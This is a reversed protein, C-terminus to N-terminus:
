HYLLYLSSRKKFDNVGSEWTAFLEEPRKGERILRLFQKTGTLREIVSEDWVMKDAHLAYFAWVLAIGPRYPQVKNRDTIRVFIGRCKQGSLEPERSLHPKKEPTFEVAEFVVGELHLANLMEAAKINDIWPAGIYEFPRETGRGESINLGEFLCSGTYAIVTNLTLLNPSPKSWPLGTEDFWMSRKWGTMEVVHLQAKVGGRLMHEGNYMRALEGITMGHLVPITGYSGFRFLFEKEPLFGDQNLGTLPNPRDLVIVEKNNEAAAEMVFGLINVHEYFRTGVEQIDFVIVDVDRLMEPTPKHIGGYLSYKVLGTEKDIDKEQDRPLSYDNTRINYEMGFLVTLRCAKHNFLADALHSGDSLRGSHNSVLAVRKGKLLHSFRSLLRDAGVQVGPTRHPEGASMSVSALGLFFTLVLSFFRFLKLNFCIRIM